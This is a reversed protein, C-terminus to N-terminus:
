SVVVGQSVIVNATGAFDGAAEFRFLERKTCVVAIDDEPGQSYNKVFTWIGDGLSNYLIVKGTWSGTLSVRAYGPANDGIHGAPYEVSLDGPALLESRQQIATM